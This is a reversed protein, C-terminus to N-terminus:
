GGRASSVAALIRVIEHAFRDAAHAHQVATLINADSQSREEAKRM